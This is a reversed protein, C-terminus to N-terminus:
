KGAVVLPFSLRDEKGSITDTAILQVSFKGPRNLLLPLSMPLIVADGPVNKNVTGSPFNGLTPRGDEDIIRLSIRVNPQKDAGREFGVAGFHVYLAQGAGPTPAPLLGEADASTSVRVLAFTREGVEFSRSLEAKKGSDGDIVTVKLTYDGPPQDRGIDVSAFAAIRNGGLSCTATQEKPDQRFVSKGSPGTVEIGTRYRVKGSDDITVGVIDFSLFLNDGPVVKTDGRTPGLVGRTFRPSALTLEDSGSGMSLAAAVLTTWIM